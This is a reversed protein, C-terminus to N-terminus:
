AADGHTRGQAAARAQSALRRGRDAQRRRLQANSRASLLAAAADKKVSRLREAAAREADSGHKISGGIAAMKVSSMTDDSVGGRSAIFSKGWPSLLVAALDRRDGGAIRALAAPLPGSGVLMQVESRLLAIEDPKSTPIKPLAATELEDIAVATEAQGLQWAVEAISDFEKAAEQVLALGAGAELRHWNQEATAVEVEYKAAAASLMMSAQQVGPPAKHLSDAALQAMKEQGTMPQTSSATDTNTNM